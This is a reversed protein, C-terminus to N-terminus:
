KLMGGAWFHWGFVDNMALPLSAEKSSNSIRWQDELSKRRGPFTTDKRPSVAKIFWSFRRLVSPNIQGNRVEENREKARNCRHRWAEDLAAGLRQSERSEDMKWLDTAQLPRQYGLTIIPTIWHYTLKSIINATALPIVPVDDLSPRPLEPPNRPRWIQYRHTIFYNACYHRKSFM